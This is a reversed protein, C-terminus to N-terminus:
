THSSALYHTTFTIRQQSDLRQSNLMDFGSDEPFNGLVKSGSKVKFVGAGRKPIVSGESGLYQTESNYNRWSKVTGAMRSVLTWSDYRGQM